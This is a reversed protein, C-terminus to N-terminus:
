RDLPDRSEQLKKWLGELAEMAAGPSLKDGQVCAAIFGTRDAFERLNETLIAEELLQVADRGSTTEM